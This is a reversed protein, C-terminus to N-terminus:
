HASATHGGKKQAANEGSFTKDCYECTETNQEDEVVTDVQAEAVDAAEERDEVEPDNKWPDEDPEELEHVGEIGEEAVREAEELEEDSPQFDDSSSFFFDLIRSIIKM